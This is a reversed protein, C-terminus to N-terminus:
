IKIIDELEQLLEKQNSVTKNKPGLTSKGMIKCPYWKNMRYIKIQKTEVSQRLAVKVTRRIPIIDGTEDDYPAYYYGNFSFMNNFNITREFRWSFLFDYDYNSDMPVYEDNPDKPLRAFKQNIYKIYFDNFWTNLEDYNKIKFRKIDNVLRKQVTDNSKEVRGKAEPSNAFIMEIGLDKMM